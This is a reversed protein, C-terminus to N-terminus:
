KISSHFQLEERFAGKDETGSLSRAACESIRDGNIRWLERKVIVKNNIEPFITSLNFNTLSTGASNISPSIEPHQINSRSVPVPPLPLLSGAALDNQKTFPNKCPYLQPTPPQLFGTHTHFDDPLIPSNISGPMSLFPFDVFNPLNAENSHKRKSKKPTSPCANQQERVNRNLNKNNCSKDKNTPPFLNLNDSYDHAPAGMDPIFNYSSTITTATPIFTNPAYSNNQFSSSFNHGFSASQYNQNQQMYSNDQPLDVAPFYPIINDHLFSTVSIPKNGGAYNQQRNKQVESSQMQHGILAEASYSSPTNKSVNRNKQGGECFIESSGGSYIQQKMQSGKGSNAEVKNQPYSVEKNEKRQNSKQPPVKKASSRNGSNRRTTTRAPVSESKNHDVLQSVSLFNSQNSGEYNKLRRTNTDKKQCKNSEAKQEAFTLPNGLALDGVLTPLTSSVFSHPPDLFQPIKTPSWSFQNEEIENRQYTNVPPVLPLDLSKRTEQLNNGVDNTNSPYIPNTNFYSTQTNTFSNTPYISNHSFDSEKTFQPLVYDTSPTQLRNDPATMWNIPPRSQVGNKNKTNNSFKDKSYHSNSYYNSSSFHTNSDGKRYDSYNEYNLSYYSRSDNKTINKYYNQNFNTDAPYSYSYTNSNTYLPDPYSKIPNAYSCTTSVKPPENFSNCQINFNKQSTYNSCAQKTEINKGGNPKPKMQYNLQQELSNNNSGSFSPLVDRNEFCAVLETKEQQPPQYGVKKSPTVQVGLDGQSTTITKVTTSAVTTTTTTMNSEFSSYFGSIDKSSFFPLNDLNLLSPTLSESQTPKTTDMTGIQLLTPTGRQSETNDEETVETVKVGTLSSVLPFALLFAATPSTSEPNQCGAPVQLSAFIDNSLESHNINLELTTSTEEPKKAEAETTKPSGEGTEVEVSAGKKSQENTELNKPAEEPKETEKTELPKDEVAEVAAKDSKEEVRNESKAEDNKPKKADSIEAVESSKRKEGTEPLEAKKDPEKPVAKKEITKNKSLKPENKNLVLDNNAYRSTLAPIPVKNVQTTKTLCYKPKIRPLTKVATSAIKSSQTSTSNTTFVTGNQLTVPNRPLLIIPPRNNLPLPNTIIQSALVTQQPLVPMITGNALILTGPGLSSISSVTKATKSSVLPNTILGSNTIVTSTNSLINNSPANTIVYCSQSISPQSLVIVCKSPALPKVKKKKSGPRLKKTESRNLIAKRHKPTGNQVGVKSKNKNTFKRGQLKKTSGNNEKEIEKKQLFKAQDPLIKNSWSLPSRFKKVIACGPPITIKADRLLSCLHENKSLLRKIREQLKKFEERQLEEIYGAANRLIDIKSTNISPDYCPLLKCLANFAENLRNRREKEWERCK